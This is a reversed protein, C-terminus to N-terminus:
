FGIQSDGMESNKISLYVTGTEHTVSRRMETEGVMDLVRHQHFVPYCRIGDENGTHGWLLYTGTGWRLNM